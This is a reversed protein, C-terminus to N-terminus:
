VLPHFTEWYTQSGTKQSLTSSASGWDAYPSSSSISPKHSNPLSIINNPLILDNKRASSLLVAASAPDVRSPPLEQLKKTTKILYNTQLLSYFKPSCCFLISSQDFYIVYSFIHYRYYIISETSPKQRCRFILSLCSDSKSNGLVKSVILFTKKIAASSEQFGNIFVIFWLNLFHHSIQWGHFKEFRQYWFSELFNLKERSFRM